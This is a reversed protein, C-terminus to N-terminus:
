KDAEKQALKKLKEAEKSTVDSFIDQIGEQKRSLGTVPLNSMVLQKNLKVLEDNNGSYNFELQDDDVRRVNTIGPLNKIYAEIREIESTAQLIIKQAIKETKLLDKIKGSKVLFGHEMIGVYTCYDALESLIHSSVLITMGQNRLQILLDSLEKRAIPDLGSAPEDLLLLKPWHLISKAIGLRQKMGRSLTGAYANSKDTLNVFKLVEAIREKIASKKIKYANAFFDLYEWVMLKSYISFFDPLFGMYANADVNNKWVDVNNISASGSTPELLGAIMRLLTTKGAGNPGILGYIEAKPIVLDVNNVAILSEYEKRIQNTQIIVQSM